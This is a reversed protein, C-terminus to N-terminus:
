GPSRVERTQIEEEPPVHLMLHIFGNHFCFFVEDSSNGDSSTGVMASMGPIKSRVCRDVTRRHVSWHDRMRATGTFAVATILM